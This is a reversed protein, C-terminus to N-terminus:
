ALLEHGGHVVQGVAAQQWRPEGEDAERPAVPLVLVERFDDKSLTLGMGFMIIGLLPVIYPGIWKFEAPFFFALIAFLLTWLAFTKGVFQSLRAIAQM